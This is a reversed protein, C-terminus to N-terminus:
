VSTRMKPIVYMVLIDALINVGIYFAAIIIGVSQVMTVDRNSVADVLAAGIGPFGFIYETVVIGGIVWQIDIAIVQITPALANRLAFRLVVTREDFGNLRAAEVYSSRLQELMGARVMRITQALSAALLTLVPLVLIDPHSLVSEGSPVFSVPPFLGAWVALVLILITGLVFEPLSIAALSLISVAHDLFGRPRVAALVGLGVGLPILVALTVAGLIASNILRPKVIPWIEAHPNGAVVGAASQGLEGQSFGTLWDEYREWAPRNLRLEARVQRVASPTANRGLLATAVDGPLVQTGAFILVSVVVLTGLGALCRRGVYRAFPHRARRRLPIAV